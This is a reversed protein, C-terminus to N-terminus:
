ARARENATGRARGRRRSGLALGLLTLALAGSAGQPARAATVGCASSTPSSREPPSSGVSPAGAGAPPSGPDPEPESPQEVIPEELPVDLEDLCIPEAFAQDGRADAARFSFCPRYARYESPVTLLAEPQAADDLPVLTSLQVLGEYPADAPPKMSTTFAFPRENTLWLEGWRPGFGDRALPVKVRAKTVSQTGTQTCTCNGPCDVIADTGPEITAVLPGQLAFRPQLSEGTSFTWSAKGLEFNGSADSLGSEFVVRYTTSPALQSPPVFGLVEQLQGAGDAKWTSAVRALALQAGSPDTLTATPEFPEGPVAESGAVASLAVTIPTNLPAQEGEPARAAVAYLPPASPGCAAAHEARCLVGAAPAAVVM